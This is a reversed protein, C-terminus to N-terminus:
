LFIFDAEGLDTPQVDSLAIDGEPTDIYAAGSKSKIEIGSFELGPIDFQIVDDGPTFDTIRDLGHGVGFVFVDAGTDGTITDEGLGGYLYDDGTGGWLRDHGAGGDVIDDGDGGGVEDYGDEGYVTDNGEGLWIADSGRGGYGLDDDLGGFILDDGDGGWLLDDGAGGGLSDNDAGGYATDRGDNMWVQDHGDGGDGIDNGNDGHVTDNGADGFVVDAGAAGGIDDNGAGGSVYDKGEGGWITDKGKDGYLSDNGGFGMISDAGGGGQVTDRGGGTSIKDNGGGGQVLNDGGQDWIKDDGDYARITNNGAGGEIYDGTDGGEILVGPDPAPAGPAGPGDMYIMRDPGAFGGPWLHAATLTEGDISEIVIRTTGYDVRAGTETETLTLQAPSRLMPFLSLDLRDLGIEFDEIRYTADGARLVFIDAGTGGILVTDGDGALLVDDGAGGLLRDGALGTGGILDDGDTGEVHGAAHLSVGLDGVPLAFQAVGASAASAVYIQVTDGIVTAAIDTINELGLGTDHVLTERWILQGDPTLSFLTLGDDAGGALVFVQGGAEFVAVSQVGGFRTDLTDLIHDTAMLSGDASLHLVSLSQSNAAALIVWSEGFASATAMATPTNVGLGDAIGISDTATLKGSNLNIKYSSVGQIGSDAILIYSKDGASAQAMVAGPLIAADISTQVTMDPGGTDLASQVTGSSADVTVLAPTGDNLTVALAAAVGDTMGPLGTQEMPGLMGGTGMDYGLLTDAGDDGFLVQVDGDLPAVVLAGTRAGTGLADFSESDSLVALGGDTLGFVSLGGNVGTAAVLYVGDPGTVIQLDRIDTDLPEAGTTVIGKFLIAM